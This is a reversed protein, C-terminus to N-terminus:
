FPFTTYQSSVGRVMNNGQAILQWLGALFETTKSAPHSSLMTEDNDDDSKSDTTELTNTDTDDDGGNTQVAMNVHAVAYLPHSRWLLGQIGNIGYANIRVRSKIQPHYAHVSHRGLCSSSSSAAKPPSLTTRTTTLASIKTAFSVVLM